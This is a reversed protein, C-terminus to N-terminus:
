RLVDTINTLIKEPLTDIRKSVPIRYAAGFLTIGTEVDKMREPSVFLFIRKNLASVVASPENIYVIPFWTAVKSNIFENIATHNKLTSNFQLLIHDKSSDNALIIGVYKNEHISYFVELVFLPRGQKDKKNLIEDIRNNTKTINL